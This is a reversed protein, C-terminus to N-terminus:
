AAIGPAVAISLALGKAEAAPRVLDLCALRSRWFMSSRRGAARCPEAEIESLDLVSTIMEFCTSAPWSCPTVRRTQTANLGGEIRLLEAYGLIGNLPTRLEHSM